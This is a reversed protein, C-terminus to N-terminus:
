KSHSVKSKPHKTSRVHCSSLISAGVGPAVAMGDLWPQGPVVVYDQKWAVKQVQLGSIANIHSVYIEAAYKMHPHENDFEIWMAERQWMPFFIGCRKVLREPLHSGFANVNTYHSHM